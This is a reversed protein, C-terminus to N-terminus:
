LYPLLEAMTQILADADRLLEVRQENDCYGVCPIGAARAAGLDAPSDGVLMANEPESGLRRMAEKIPFPNPKMLDPRRLTRGVVVAVYPELRQQQLYASVAEASNNSVISVSRGRGVATEIVQAAFPTPTASKTAEVEALILAAEVKDLLQQDGLKAVSQLVALPDNTHRTPADITVGVQDLVERLKSAVVFDTVGAFISCVPGDFDLLVSSSAALIRKIQDDSTM